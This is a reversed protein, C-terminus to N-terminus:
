AIVGPKVDEMDDGEGDEMDGDQTNTDTSRMRRPALELTAAGEGNGAGEADRGRGKRVGRRSETPRVCELGRRACQNCPGEDEGNKSGSSESGNGGSSNGAGGGGPSGADGNISGESGESDGDKGQGQAQPGPGCAIKRKRCFFCAMRPRKVPPPATPINGTLSSLGSRKVAPTLVLRMVSSSTEPACTPGPLPMEGQALSLPYSGFLGMIPPASPECPSNNASSPRQHAPYPHFPRFSPQERRPNRPPRPPGVNSPVMPTQIPTPSLKVPSAPKSEAKVSVRTPSAPHSIPAHSPVVPSPSVSTNQTAPPSNSEAPRPPQPTEDKLKQPTPAYPNIITVSPCPPPLASFAVPPPAPPPKVQGQMQAWLATAQQPPDPRLAEMPPDEARQPARWHQEDYEYMSQPEQQAQYHFSPQPQGHYLQQQEAEYARGEGAQVAQEYVMGEAEQYGVYSQEQEMVEQGQAGSCNDPRLPEEFVDNQYRHQEHYASSAREPASRPENTAPYPFAAQGVHQYTATDQRGHGQEQYTGNEQHSGRNENLQDPPYSPYSAAQQERFYTYTTPTQTWVIPATEPVPSPQPQSTSQWQLSVSPDQSGVEFVPQRSPVVPFMPPTQPSASPASPFPSEGAVPFDTRVHLHPQPQFDYRDECQSSSYAAYPSCYPNHDVFPAASPYPNATQDRPYM